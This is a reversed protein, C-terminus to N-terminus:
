KKEAPGAAVTPLGLRDFFSQLNGGSFFQWRGPDDSDESMMWDIGSLLNLGLDAAGQLLIASLVRPWCFGLM